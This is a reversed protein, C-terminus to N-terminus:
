KYYGYTRKLGEQLSVNPKWGLSCILTADAVWNFSDYPRLTNVEQKKLKKKAINELIKIVTENSYQKGTGIPVSRGVVKTINDMVKLVGEIFDDIYTWDHNANVVLMEGRKKLSHIVTPIFRFDAEGEGYISFPRISTIPKHYKKAYRRCLIEAIFKTDSYLTQIPLIVSSTSFHIFGKYPMDKTERLLEYLDLINAKVIKTKDQQNFHNGYSSLYLIYDPDKVKYPKGHHIIVVEHKLTTLKKVLHSGIFGSAGFIYIKM